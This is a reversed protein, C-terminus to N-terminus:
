KSVNGVRHRIIRPMANPYKSENERCVDCTALDYHVLGVWQDGTTPDLPFPAGCLLVGHWLIHIMIERDGNGTLAQGVKGLRAWGLWAM